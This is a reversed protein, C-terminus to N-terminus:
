SLGPAAALLVAIFLGLALVLLGTASISPVRPGSSGNPVDNFFWADSPDFYVSGETISGHNGGPFVASAQCAAFSTKSADMELVLDCGSLTFGAFRLSLVYDDATGAIEDYGAAGLRLMAVDDHALARQAEDVHTGQHMVSETRPDVSSVAAVERSGIAAFSDSGPLDDLDRSYTSTDVVSAITFPDNNDIRFWSLNVDDDREDDGSGGTEDDGADLNWEEDPGEHSSCFDPDSAGRGTGINPHGLGICHLTEHLAVSEFDIQGPPINNDGGTVLNATTPELANITRVLNEVPLVMEAAHASGPDICVVVELLGGTGDYDAPHVITDEFGEDAFLFTGASAIGPFLGSVALALLLRAFM